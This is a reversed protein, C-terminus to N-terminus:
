KLAKTNCVGTSIRIYKYEILCIIYLEDYNQWFQNDSEIRELVQAPFLRMKVLKFRFFKFTRCSLEVSCTQSSSSRQCCGSRMFARAATYVCIVFDLPFGECFLLLLLLIQVHRDQVTMILNASTHPVDGVNSATTCTLRASRCVGNWSSKLTIGEALCKYRM